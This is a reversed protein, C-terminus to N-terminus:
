QHYHQLRALRGEEGVARRSHLYYACQIQEYHTASKSQLVAATHTIKQRRAFQTKMWEVGSWEVGMRFRRFSYALFFRLLFIRM